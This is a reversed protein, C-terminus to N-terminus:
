IIPLNDTVRRFTLSDVAVLLRFATCFIISECDIAVWNTFDVIPPFSPLINILFIAVSGQAFTSSLIKKSLKLPSQDFGDLGFSGVPLEFINYPISSLWYFKIKLHGIKAFGSFTIKKTKM